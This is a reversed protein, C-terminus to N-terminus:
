IKYEVDLTAFRHIVQGEDGFYDHTRDLAISGLGFTVEVGIGM